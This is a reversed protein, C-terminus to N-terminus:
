RVIAIRQALVSGDAQTTGTTTVRVANGVDACGGGEYTTSGGALITKGELTFSV